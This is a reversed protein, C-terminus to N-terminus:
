ADDTRGLWTMLLGIGIINFLFGVAFGMVPSERKSTAIVAGLVGCPVCLLLVTTTASWSAGLALGGDDVQM